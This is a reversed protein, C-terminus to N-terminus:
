APHAGSGACIFDIKAAPDNTFGAHGALHHDGAPLLAYGSGHVGTWKIERGAITVPLDVPARSRFTFRLWPKEYQDRFFHAQVPVKQGGYFSEGPGGQATGVDPSFSINGICTTEILPPADAEGAAGGRRRLMEDDNGTTDAASTTLNPGNTARPAAELARQAGAPGTPFEREGGPQPRRPEGTAHRTIALSAAHKRRHGATGAPGTAPGAAAFGDAAAPRVGGSGPHVVTGSVAHGGRHRRGGDDDGALAGGRSGAAAGARASRKGVAAADGPATGAVAGGQGGAQALPVLPVAGNKGGPINGAPVPMPASTGAIADSRDRTLTLVCGDGRPELVVTVREMEASAPGRITLSLRHPRRIELYEVTHEAADPLLWEAANEADTLASWLKEPTTRIYTVYVFTSRAM